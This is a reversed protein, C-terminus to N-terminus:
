MGYLWISKPMTKKLCFTPKSNQFDNTISLEVGKYTSLLKILAFYSRFAVGLFFCISSALLIALQNSCKILINLVEIGVIGALLVPGGIINEEGKISSLRPRVM